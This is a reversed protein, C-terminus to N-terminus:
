AEDIRFDAVLGSHDCATCRCVSESDWEADGGVDTGDPHLDAFQKVEVCLCDDRDCNPCALGWEQRVSSM